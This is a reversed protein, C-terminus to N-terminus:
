SSFIEKFHIDKRYHNVKFLDNNKSYLYYIYKIYCLNCLWLLNCEDEPILVNVIYGSIPPSKHLTSSM